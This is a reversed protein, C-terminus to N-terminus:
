STRSGMAEFSLRYLSLPSTKIREDRWAALELKPRGGVTMGRGRLGSVADVRSRRQRYADRAGGPDRCRRAASRAMLLRLLAQCLGPFRCLPKGCGLWGSAALLEVAAAPVRELDSEDVVAVERGRLGLM